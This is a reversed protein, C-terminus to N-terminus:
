NIQGTFSGSCSKQGKIGKLTKSINVTKTGNFFGVICKFETRDDFWLKVAVRLRSSIKYYDGDRQAAADTAVGDSVKAGNVEWSVEVHDPYFGTALCVLTKKKQDSKQNKCEKLSPELLKVTPETVDIGNESILREFRHIVREAGKSFVSGTLFLCLKLWPNWVSGLCKRVWCQSDPAAASTLLTWTWVSAHSCVFGPQESLTPPKKFPLFLGCSAKWSFSFTRYTLFSTASGLRDLCISQTKYILM